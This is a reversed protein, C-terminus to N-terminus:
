CSPCGCNDENGDEVIRQPGRTDRICAWYNVLARIAGEGGDVHSNLVCSEDGIECTMVVESHAMPESTPCPFHFLYTRFLTRKYMVRM